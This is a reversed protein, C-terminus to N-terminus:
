RASNGESGAPDVRSRLYIARGAGSTDRQGELEFMTRFCVPRFEVNRDCVGWCWHPVWAGTTLGFDDVVPGGNEAWVSRSVFPSYAEVRQNLVLNRYANERAPMRKADRRWHGAHRRPKPLQRFDGHGTEPTPATSNRYGGQRKRARWPSLGREESHLPPLDPPVQFNIAVGPLTVILNRSMARFLPLLIVSVVMRVSRIIPTSPSM